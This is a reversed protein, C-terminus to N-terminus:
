LGTKNGSNLNEQVNASWLLTIKTKIRIKNEAPSGANPSISCYGSESVKIFATALLTIKAHVLGHWLKSVNKSQRIALQIQETCILKQVKNTNSGYLGFITEDYILFIHYFYIQM